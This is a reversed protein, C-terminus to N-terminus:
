EEFLVSLRIMDQTTLKINEFYEVNIPEFDLDIKEKMLETYDDQFEKHNEDPVSLRGTEPDEIGLKQILKVREEEIMNLNNNVEKILRNLKFAIRLKIPEKSLRSLPEKMDYIEALTVNM